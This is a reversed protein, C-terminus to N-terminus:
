PNLVQRSYEMAEEITRPKQLTDPAPGGPVPTSPAQAAPPTVQASAIVQAIQRAAENALDGPQRNPQLQQAAKVRVEVMDALEAPLGAATAASTAADKVAQEAAMQSFWRQMEGITDQKITEALQRPDLAPQEYAPQEEYAEDQGYFQAYPDQEQQPQGFSQVFQGDIDPRLIQGLRQHRTDLNNLDRYVSLAEQIVEPPAGYDPVEPAPAAPPQGEPAPANQPDTM